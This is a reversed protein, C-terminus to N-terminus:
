RLVKLREPAKCVFVGLHVRDQKGGQLGLRVFTIDHKNARRPRRPDFVTPSITRADAQLPTGRPVAEATAEDPWVVAQRDERGDRCGM